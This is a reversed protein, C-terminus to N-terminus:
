SNKETLKDVLNSKEKRKFEKALIGNIDLNTYTGNNIIFDLEGVAIKETAEKLKSM